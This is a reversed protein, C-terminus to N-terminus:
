YRENIEKIIKKQEDTFKDTRDYYYFGVKFSDVYHKLNDKLHNITTEEVKSVEYMPSPLPGEVDTVIWEEPLAYSLSTFAYDISQYASNSFLVVTSFSTVLLSFILLIM